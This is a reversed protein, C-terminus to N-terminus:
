WSNRLTLETAYNGKKPSVALFLVPKLTQYVQNVNLELEAKHAKYSKLHELRGQWAEPSIELTTIIPIQFKYTYM